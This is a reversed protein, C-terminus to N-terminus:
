PLHLTLGGDGGVMVMIVPILEKLPKTAYIFTPFLQLECVHFNKKQRPKEIENSFRQVM